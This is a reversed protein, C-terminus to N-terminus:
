EERWYLDEGTFDAMAEAEAQTKREWAILLVNGGPMPEIDHHQQHDSNSFFFDWVM